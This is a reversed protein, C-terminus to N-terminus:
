MLKLSCYGRCKPEDELGALVHPLAGRSGGSEVKDTLALLGALNGRVELKAGPRKRGPRPNEHRATWFSM